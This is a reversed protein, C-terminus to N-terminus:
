NSGIDVGEEAQKDAFNLYHRIAEYFFNKRDKKDWEHLVFSKNKKAHAIYNEKTKSLVYDIGLKSVSSINKISGQKNLKDQHEMSCAGYIKKGKTVFFGRASRGCISCLSPRNEKLYKM